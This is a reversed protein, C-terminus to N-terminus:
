SQILTTKQFRSAIKGKIKKIVMQYNDKEFLRSDSRARDVFYLGVVLLISNALWAGVAVELLGDKVFKDGQITLVYLLIFFIISVLVPVGFGGKKIIAGLPAGILFMILCSIAQTYKHHIELKYKNADKLQGQLYSYNSEAYSGMSTAASHANKVIEVKMSDKVSVQLLSDIWKGKEIPVKSPQRYQYTFYNRSNPVLNQTGQKYVGGLSDASKSLDAINKMFEHYKFQDENTRKVGFSALSEVLKYHKFSNRQFNSPRTENTATSVYSTNRNTNNVLDNYMTGNYLEIVLYGNNHISYMRGSDALIIQTNGVEYARQDHKYIVMGILKGNDLKKDVKISYGPLDNYFIGEKIKLTAKATKIDYLLSYGKLNAWPSIRDNFFFSFISIGVAVIFLPLMARTVSIGASKIATLEFFEGLNGFAMLSSLLMALPLATPVTILSFYFFLQAYDMFGLDKSVFDDIYFIMIKMLFIFVVVSMTIVFPGWFSKLILKDLKKM